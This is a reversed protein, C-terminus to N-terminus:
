AERKIIHVMWHFLRCCMWNKLLLKFVETGWILAFFYPKM